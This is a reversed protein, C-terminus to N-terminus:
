VLWLYWWKKRTKLPRKEGIFIGKKVDEPPIPKTEGRSSLAYGEELEDAIRRLVGIMLNVTIQDTISAM